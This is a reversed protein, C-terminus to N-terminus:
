KLQDILATTREDLPEGQIHRSTHKEHPTCKAVMDRVDVTTIGCEELDRRLKWYDGGLEEEPKNLTTECYGFVLHFVLDEIVMGYLGQTKTKGLYKTCALSLVKQNMKTQVYWNAAVGNDAEIGRPWHKYPIRCRSRHQPRCFGVEEHLVRMTDTLAVRFYNNIVYFEGMDKSHQGLGTEKGVFAVGLDKILCIPMFLWNHNIPWADCDLSCFFEGEAYQLSEDIPYGADISNIRHYDVDLEYNKETRAAARVKDLTDGSQDMVLIQVDISPNSYEAISDLCCRLYHPKDIHPICVTCSTTM